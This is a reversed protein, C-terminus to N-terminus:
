VLLSMQFIRVRLAKYFSQRAFDVKRRQEYASKLRPGGCSMIVRPSVCPSARALLFHMPFLVIAYVRCEKAASYYCENKTLLVCTISVNTLM